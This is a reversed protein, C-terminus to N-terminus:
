PCVPPSLVLSSVSVGPATYPTLTPCLGLPVSQSLVPVHNLSLSYFSLALCHSVCWDQCLITALPARLARGLEVPHLPALLFLCQVSDWHALPSLLIPMSGAASPLCSPITRALPGRQGLSFHLPSLNALLVFLVCELLILAFASFVGYATAVAPDSRLSLQTLRLCGPHSLVRVLKVIAVRRPAAPLARGRVQQVTGPGQFKHKLRQTSSSSTNLLIHLTCATGLIMQNPLIRPTEFTTSLILEMTM